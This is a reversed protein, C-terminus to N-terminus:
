TDRSLAGPKNHTSPRQKGSEMEYFRCYVELEKGYADTVISMQDEPLPITLMCAHAVSKCISHFASEM